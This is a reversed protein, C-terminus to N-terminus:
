GAWKIQTTNGWVGVRRKSRYIEVWWVWMKQLPKSGAYWNVWRDQLVFLFRLRNRVFYIQNCDGPKWILKKKVNQLDAFPIPSASLIEERGFIDGLFTELINEVPRKLHEESCLLNIITASCCKAMINRRLSSICFNWCRSIRKKPFTQHVCTHCWLFFIDLFNKFQM